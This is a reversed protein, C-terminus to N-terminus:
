HVLDDRLVRRTLFYHEESDLHARLGAIAQRLESTPTPLSALQHGM